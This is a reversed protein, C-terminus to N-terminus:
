ALKRLKNVNWIITISHFMVWKGVSAASKICYLKVNSIRIHYISCYTYKKHIHIRTYTQTHKKLTHCNFNGVNYRGIYRGHWQRVNAKM